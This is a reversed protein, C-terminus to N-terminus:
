LEKHNIEGCQWRSYTALFCLRMAPYEASATSQWVDCCMKAPCDNMLSEAEMM